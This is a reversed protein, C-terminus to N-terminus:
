RDASIFEAEPLSAVYRGKYTIRNIPLELAMNRLYPHKPAKVFVVFLRGPSAPCTGNAIARHVTVKSGEYGIVTALKRVM